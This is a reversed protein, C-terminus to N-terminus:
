DSSTENIKRLNEHLIEIDVAAKDYEFSIEPVYRLDIENAIIRRFYGTMNKLDSLVSKVKGKSENSITFLIMASKLGGQMRVGSISVMHFKSHLLEDM